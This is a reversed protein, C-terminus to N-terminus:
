INIRRDEVGRIGANPGIGGGPCDARRDGTCNQQDLKSVDFRKVQMAHDRQQDDNAGQNPGHEKDDLNAMFDLIAM